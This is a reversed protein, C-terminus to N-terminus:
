VVEALVSGLLAPDHEPWPSDVRAVPTRIIKWGHLGEEFFVRALGPPVGWESNDTIVTGRRTLKGHKELAALHDEGRMGLTEANQTTLNGVYVLTGTAESIVEGLPHVVLAAIISTFLSGAAIVIQDAGAVAALASLEAEGDSVEIQEIGGPTRSVSVQGSIREGGIVASLTLPRDAVPIVRGIAGLLRGALAVGDVFGGAHDALAALLLNGLAHGSVDEGDTSGPDEPGGPFRYSFLSSWVSPEPSLALLCRRIDGPAPVGLSSVLRGSSGGDDAVSVIATVDSTYTAIAELTVALGHGGGIAVVKPGGSRRFLLELESDISSKTTM